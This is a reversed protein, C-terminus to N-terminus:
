DGRYELEKLVRPNNLELAKHLREAVLTLNNYSNNLSNKDIHHFQLDFEKIMDTLDKVTITQNYHNEFERKVKILGILFSEDRISDKFNDSKKHIRIRQRLKNEKKNVSIFHTKRLRVNIDPIIYQIGYKTEIEKVYKYIETAEIKNTEVIESIEIVLYYISPLYIFREIQEVVTPPM